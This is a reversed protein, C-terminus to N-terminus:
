RAEDRPEGIKEVNDSQVYDFGGLSDEEGQM